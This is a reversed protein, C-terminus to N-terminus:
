DLYRSKPGLAAGEDSMRISFEGYKPLIVRLFDDDNVVRAWMGVPIQGGAFDILALDRARPM